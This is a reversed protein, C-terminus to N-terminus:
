KRRNADMQPTKKNEITDFAVIDGCPIQMNQWANISLGTPNCGGERRPIIASLEGSDPPIAIVFL